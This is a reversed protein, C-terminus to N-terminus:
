KFILSFFTGWGADAPLKAFFLTFFWGSFGNSRNDSCTLLDLAVIQLSTFGRRTGKQSSILSLFRDSRWHTALAFLNRVGLSAYTQSFTGEKGLRSAQFNISTRKEESCFSHPSILIGFHKNDAPEQCGSDYILPSDVGGKLALNSHTSWGSLVETGGKHYLKVHGLKLRLQLGGNAMKPNLRIHLQTVAFFPIKSFWDRKSQAKLRTDCTCLRWSPIVIAEEICPTRPPKKKEIKFTNNQNGCHPSSYPPLLTGFM